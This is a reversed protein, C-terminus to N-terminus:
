DVRNLFLVFFVPSQDDRLKSFHTVDAFLM